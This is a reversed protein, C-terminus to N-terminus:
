DALPLYKKLYISLPTTAVSMILPESALACQKQPEANATSQQKTTSYKKMPQIQTTKPKTRQPIHLIKFQWLVAQSGGRQM